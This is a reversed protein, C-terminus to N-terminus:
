LKLKEFNALSLEKEVLSGLSLKNTPKTSSPTIVYGYVENGEIKQPIFYATGFGDSPYSLICDSLNKSLLIRRLRKIEKDEM